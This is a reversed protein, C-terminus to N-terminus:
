RDPRDGYQSFIFFVALLHTRRSSATPQLYDGESWHRDIQMALLLGSKLSSPRRISIRRARQRFGNHQRCNDLARAKMGAAGDPQTLDTPQLVVAVGVEVVCLNNTQNCDRRLSCPAVLM